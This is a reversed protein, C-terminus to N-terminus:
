RLTEINIKFPYRDLELLVNLNGTNNQVRLMQNCLSIHFKELKALDNQDQFYRWSECVYLAVPKITVDILNLYTTVTKGESTYLFQQLM